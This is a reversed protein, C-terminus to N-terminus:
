KKGRQFIGQIMKGTKVYREQLQEIEKQQIDVIKQLALYNEILDKQANPKDADWVHTAEVLEKKTYRKYQL